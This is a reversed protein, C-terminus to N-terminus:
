AGSAHSQSARKMPARMSRGFAYLAAASMVHWLAHGQVVHSTPDCVIRRHDVFSAAGALAIAVFALAVWPPSSVGRSIARAEVMLIALTWAGILAQYPVGAAHAATMAVLSAAVAALALTARSRADRFSVRGLEYAVIAGFMSFMGAFDLWQSALNNSAHYAFSCAGVVLLSGGFWREEPTRRRAGRLLAAAAVGYAVNSWANAPESIAACLTEECWKV